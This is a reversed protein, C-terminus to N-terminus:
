KEASLERSFFSPGPRGSITSSRSRSSALAAFSRAVWGLMPDASVGICGTKMMAEIGVPNGAKNSEWAAHARDFLESVQDKTLDMSEALSIINLGDQTAMIEALLRPFQVANDNWKADSM